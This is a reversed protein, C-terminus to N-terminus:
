PVLRACRAGLELGSLFAARVADRGRLGYSEFLDVVYTAERQAADHDIGAAALQEAVTLEGHAIADRQARMIAEADIM